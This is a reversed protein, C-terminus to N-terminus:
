FFLDLLDVNQCLCRSLTNLLSVLKKEVELPACDSCTVLLHFMPRVLPRTFLATQHCLQEVLLQYLKLQQLKMRNTFEGVDSAWILLKDLMSEMLLYDTSSACM